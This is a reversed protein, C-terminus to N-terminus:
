GVKVFTLMRVYVSVSRRNALRGLILCGSLSCCRNDSCFGICSGGDVLLGIYSGCDNLLGGGSDLFVNCGGDLMFLDRLLMLLLLLFHDILFDMLIMVVSRNLRGLIAFYKRCFVLVFFCRRFDLMDLVVIASNLRFSIISIGVEFASARLTLSLFGLRLFCSSYRVLLHVVVQVLRYLRDDLFTPDDRDVM